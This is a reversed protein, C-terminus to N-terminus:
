SRGRIGYKGFYLALAILAIISITNGLARPWTNTFQGTLTQNGPPVKTTILKHANNDKIRAESGDLWVEWGPFNAVNIQITTENTFQGTLKFRHPLFIEETSQLNGSLVQYKRPPIKSRDIDVWVTGLDTVRTAVEKPLYEFSTSSIVGKIQEDYTEQDDTDTFLHTQPVFNKAEIYLIASILTITVLIKLPINKVLALISGAILAAFLTAFELFRWPFQLYWLPPFNDWLIKSYDTTMFLSIFFLFYSILIVLALKKHAKLWLYAVAGFSAIAALIHLKGLKFSLGDLCGATSGGFGWPSNWLQQPCVFHIQYSALNKILLQDVLTFQKEALAPLWFFASLAFCLATYLIFYLTYRVPENRRYILVLAFYWLASIGVFPLFILNHTIMLLGLLIGSALIWRDYSIPLTVIKYLALLILPLWVFSFLEALSGRVYADVAHYPAYVYFMAAVLGGARGFYEKALFYMAIGSGVLAVFWVIKISYIFGTGLLLHFLEGLYYILPPYFNFLPYGFSFGLDPVWRVPFQGALLAKNLEFLRAIQQNDHITFFGSALLPKWSWFSAIFLVVLPSLSLLKQWFKM